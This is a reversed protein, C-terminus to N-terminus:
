ATIPSSSGAGVAGTSPTSDPSPTERAHENRTASAGHLALEVPGALRELSLEIESVVNTKERLLVVGGRV